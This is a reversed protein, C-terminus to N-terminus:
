RKCRQLLMNPAGKVFLKTENDKRKPSTKTKSQVLVSMSKRERDFELMAYRDWHNIFHLYYQSAITSPKSALDNPGLKELLCLLVAETPEGEITYRETSNENETLNEHDNGILRADNCLAM